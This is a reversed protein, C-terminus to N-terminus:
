DRLRPMIQASRPMDRGRSDLCSITESKPLGIPPSTIVFLFDPSKRDGVARTDTVHACDLRHKVKQYHYFIDGISKLSFPDFILWEKSSFSTKSAPKPTNTYIM